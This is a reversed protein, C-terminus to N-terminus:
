QLDADDDQEALDREIEAPHQAAYRLAEEVDAVTLGVHRYQERIQHPTLGAETWHVILWVPIRTEGVRASGGVIGPTHRIPAPSVKSAM